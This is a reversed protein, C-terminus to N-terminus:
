FNAFLYVWAIFVFKRIQKEFNTKEEGVAIGAGAQRPLEASYKRLNQPGSLAVPL